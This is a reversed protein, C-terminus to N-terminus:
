RPRRLPKRCSTGGPSSSPTTAAGSSKTSRPPCRKSWVMTRRPPQRSRAKSPAEPAQTPTSFRPRGPSRSTIRPVPAPDSTATTGVRASPLTVADQTQYYKIDVPKLGKVEAQKRWETVTINSIGVNYKGSHLPDFSAFSPGLPVGISLSQYLYSINGWFLLQVILPLSRFAFHGGAAATV